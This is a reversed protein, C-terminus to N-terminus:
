GPVSILLQEKARWLPNEKIRKDIEDDVGKLEKDLWRIHTEISKKLVPSQVRSLRNKEATQMNILQRRRVIFAELELAAEDPMARVEPRIREGFLALIRADIRDTKSLEGTARAFERVQRPNIVVVPLAAVTLAIAASREFGGTAELVVLEPSVNELRVILRTRGAEDNKEQWYEGSPHLAVDLTEQPIRLLQPDRSKIPHFLAAYGEAHAWCVFVGSATPPFSVGGMSLSDVSVEETCAPSIVSVSSSIARSPALRM